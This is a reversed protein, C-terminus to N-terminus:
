DRNVAEEDGFTVTWNESHTRSDASADSPPTMYDGYLNTLYTDYGVPVPLMRDRFRVDVASAMHERRITERPGYHVPVSCAVYESTDFDFRRVLWDIKDAFFHAGIRRTFVRIFRRLPKHRVKPPIDTRLCDRILDVLVKQAKYIAKQRRRSKPMGDIPYVDVFVGLTRDPYNMYEIKTAPDWIKGWQRNWKPDMHLAGVAYKGEYRQAFGDMFRYYEKRPLMIDGDDDWPIFDHHRVAGLCTGGSLFYPINQERCYDDIDCLMQYVIDQMRHLADRETGQDAM